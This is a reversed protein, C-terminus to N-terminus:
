YVSKIGYESDRSRADNFILIFDPLLTQLVHYCWQGREMYTTQVNSLGGLDIGTLDISTSGSELLHHDFSNWLWGEVVYSPTYICVIATWRSGIIGAFLSQVM